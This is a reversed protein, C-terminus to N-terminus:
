AFNGSLWRNKAERVGAARRRARRCHPPLSTRPLSSWTAPGVGANNERLIKNSLEMAFQLFSIGNSTLRQIRVRVPARAWGM